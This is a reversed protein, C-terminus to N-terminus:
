KPESALRTLDAKSIRISNGPLSTATGSADLAYQAQRENLLSAPVDSYTALFLVYTQGRELYVIDPTDHAIGGLAGGLQKVQIKQRNEASGKFTELVTVVCVTYVFTDSPESGIHLKEVRGASTVTGQIVLDAREYLQDVSEYVPSDSM